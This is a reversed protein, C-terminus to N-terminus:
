KDYTFWTQPRSRLVILAKIASVWCRRREQQLSRALLPFIDCLGLPAAVQRQPRLLPCEPRHLQRLQDAEQGSPLRASAPVGAPVGAM